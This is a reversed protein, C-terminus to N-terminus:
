VLRGRDAIKEMEQLFASFSNPEVRKEREIVVEVEAGNELEPTEIRIASNEVVAKYKKSM